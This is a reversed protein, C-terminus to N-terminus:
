RQGRDHGAVHELRAHRDEGLASRRSVAVRALRYRRVPQPASGAPPAGEGSRPDPQATRPVLVYRTPNSSSRM